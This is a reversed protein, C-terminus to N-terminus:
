EENKSDLAAKAMHTECCHYNNTKSHKLNTKPINEGGRNTPIKPMCGTYLSGYSYYVLWDTGPNTNKKDEYRTM